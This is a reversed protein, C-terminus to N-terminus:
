LERILVERNGGKRRRREDRRFAMVPLRRRPLRRGIEAARDRGRPFRAHILAAAAERYLPARIIGNRGGGGPSHAAAGAFVRSM